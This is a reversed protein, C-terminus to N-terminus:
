HSPSGGAEEEKDWGRRGTYRLRYKKLERPASGGEDRDSAGTLRYGKKKRNKGVALDEKRNGNYKEKQGLRLKGKEGLDQVRGRWLRETESRV